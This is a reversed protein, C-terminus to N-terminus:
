VEEEFEFMDDGIYTFEGVLLDNAIKEVQRGEANKLSEVILQIVEELSHTQMESRRITTQSKGDGISIRCYSFGRMRAFQVGLQMVDLNALKGGNRAFEAAVEWVALTIFNDGFEDIFDFTFHKMHTETRSIFERVPKALKM